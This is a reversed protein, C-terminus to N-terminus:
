AHGPRAALARRWLAAAQDLAGRGAALRGAEYAADADEPALAVARALAAEAEEARGLTALIVGRASLARPFDPSIALAREVEVLGAASEGRLHLLSGLKLHAKASRPVREVALRFLTLDDSWAAAYRVTAVGLALVL